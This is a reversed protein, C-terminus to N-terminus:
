NDSVGDWVRDQVAGELSATLVDETAVTVLELTPQQYFKM